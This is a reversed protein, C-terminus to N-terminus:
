HFAFSSIVSVTKMILGPVWLIMMSFSLLPRVPGPIRKRSDKVNRCLRAICITLIYICFLLYSSVKEASTVPAPAVPPDVVKDEDAWGRLASTNPVTVQGRGKFSKNFLGRPHGGDYRDHKWRSEEVKVKKPKSNTVQQWAGGESGNAPSDARRSSGSESSPSVVHELSGRRNTDILSRGNHRGKWFGGLQRINSEALGPASSSWFKNVRTGENYKKISETDRVFDKFNSIPIGNEEVEDAWDLRSPEHHSSAPTSIDSAKDSSATLSVAPTLPAPVISITSSALSAMADTPVNESATSDRRPEMSLEIDEESEEEAEAEGENNLRGNALALKRRRKRAAKKQRKAALALAIPDNPDTALNNDVIPESPILTNVLSLPINVTKTSYKLNPKSFRSPHSALSSNTPIKM